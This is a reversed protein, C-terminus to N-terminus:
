VHIVFLKNSKTKADDRKARIIEVLKAVLEYVKQCCMVPNGIVHLAAEISRAGCPNIESHESPTLDRDTQLLQQLRSKVRQLVYFFNLELRVYCTIRLSLNCTSYLPLKGTTISYDM